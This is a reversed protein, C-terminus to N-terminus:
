TSSPKASSAATSTSMSLLSTSATNQTPEGCTRYKCSKSTCLCARSACHSDATCREYDQLRCKHDTDCISTSRNCDASVRCTGLTPIRDCQTVPCGYYNCPPQICHQSFCQNNSSCSVGSSSPQCVTPAGSKLGYNSCFGQACQEENSCRDGLQLVVCTSNRCASFSCDVDRRCKSGAGGAGCAQDQVTDIKTRNFPDPRNIFGSICSGSVCQTSNSCIGGTYVSGVKPNPACRGNHGCIEACQNNHICIDGISGIKCRKHKCVGQACDLFNRCGSDGVAVYDCVYESANGPLYTYPDEENGTRLRDTLVCRGTRCQAAETCIEQPYLTGNKPASRTIPLPDATAHHALALCAFFWPLCLAGSFM